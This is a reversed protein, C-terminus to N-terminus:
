FAAHSCPNAVSKGGVSWGGRSPDDGLNGVLGLSTVYLAHLLKTCSGHMEPFAQQRISVLLAKIKTCFGELLEKARRHRFVQTFDVKVFIAPISAHYLLGQRLDRCM